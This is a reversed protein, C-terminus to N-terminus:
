QIVNIGPLLSGEEVVEYRHRRIRKNMHRAVRKAKNKTYRLVKMHGTDLDKICFQVIPVCDPCVMDSEEFFGLDEGGCLDHQRCRDCLRCIESM